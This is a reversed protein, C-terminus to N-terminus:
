GFFHGLEEGVQRFGDGVGGFKGGAEFELKAIQAVFKRTIGHGFALGHHRKQALAGVFAGAPTIADRKRAVADWLVAEMILVQLLAGAALDFAFEMEDLLEVEGSIEEDDPVDDAEAAFLVDKGLSAPRGGVAGDAVREADGRDIRDAHLKQEFAKEGFLAPLPGVDVDVQGGAILALADDLV